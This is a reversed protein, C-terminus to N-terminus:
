TLWFVLVYLFFVNDFIGTYTHVACQTVHSVWHASFGPCRDGAQYKGGSTCTFYGFSDSVRLATFCHKGRLNPAASTLLLMFHLNKINTSPWFNRWCCVEQKLLSSPNILRHLQPDFVAFAHKTDERSEAESYWNWRTISAEAKRSESLFVIVGAFQRWSEHPFHSSVASSAASYCTDLRKQVRVTWGATSLCNSEGM